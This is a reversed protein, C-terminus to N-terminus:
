IQPPRYALLEKQEAIIALANLAEAANGAVLSDWALNLNNQVYNKDAKNMITVEYYPIQCLGM